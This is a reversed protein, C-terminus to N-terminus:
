DGILVRTKERRMLICSIFLSGIFAIIFNVGVHIWPKIRGNLLIVTFYIFQQHFLYLPMTYEFLCKFYKNNDWRIYNGLATLCLFTFISGAIHLPLLIGIRILEGKLGPTSLYYLYVLFLITHLFLWKWWKRLKSFGGLYLRIGIYFFIFYQYATFVCFINTLFRSGLKGLCFLFVAIIWGWKPQSIYRWLPWAIAFVDFLMWLFWLQSPNIGLIYRKLVISVDHTFLYYDIPAVWITAVFYYPVILRLVKKKLLALYQQYGGQIMKYAFLYGSILTFCYTHISNIWLYVGKIISSKYVVPIETIWSESWFAMSHGIIVFVMLVIKAFGSNKLERSINGRSNLVKARMDM